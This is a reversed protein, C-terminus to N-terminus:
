RDVAQGTSEPGNNSVVREPLGRLGARRHPMWFGKM